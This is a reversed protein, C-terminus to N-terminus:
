LFKEKKFNNNGLTDSVKDDEPPKETGVEKIPSMLSVQAEPQDVEEQSSILEDVLSENELENDIAGADFENTRHGVVTNINEVADEYDSDGGASEKSSNPKLFKEWVSQIKVKKSQNSDEKENARKM